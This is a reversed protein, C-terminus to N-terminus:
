KDECQNKWPKPKGLLFGQGYNIGMEVATKLDEPREIGELILQTSGHFLEVLSKIIKQKRMHTSLNATFYRDVKVFEPELEIWHQFSSYGIGLDDVAIKVQRAKLEKVIKKLTTWDKVPENESLEIAIPIGKVLYKDYVYLFDEKLLTSPFVNIFLVGVDSSVQKSAMILSQLDLENLLGATKAKNFINEPSFKGNSYRLLAEYGIIERTNLNLIPQYWHTILNINLISELYKSNMYM